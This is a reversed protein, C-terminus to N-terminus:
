RLDRMVHEAAVYTLAAATLTPNSTGITPMNGCGVLYLNAHDWTRGSPAVVSDLRSKGMRHTGVVHGAGMLAFAAGQHGLIQFPGGALATYDTKEDVGTRKWVQTAVSVFAECGALSYSEIDYHIVPKPIGLPGVYAPDIRVRNSASPLQEILAGLRVQRTVTEALKQRLAAGFLGAAVGASVDASPSGFSSWGWNNFSARFAAHEQRFKGDRLSEIGTIADPGRYPYLPEPALGWSYIYPHDMLNRGLQDSSNAAGSSLLLRANEIANAALVFIAAEVRVTEPAAAPKGNAAHYRKYELARIRGSDSDIVLRTAVSQTQIEIKEPPISALTKLANYKAQVPCLPTCSSNGQCRLGLDGDGPASVPKYGAGGNYKPNPISNRGQPISIAEVPYQGGYMPTKMGKLRPIFYQDLYSAPIKKMPYVYGRPFTVGHITQDEVDAAVGIEQEAQGYYRSLDEYGIPWDVGRGYSTQMRFDNPVMRLSTGQWHLTTGGLARTYDSLFPVPGLQVLYSATSPQGINRVDAAPANPNAPYPANPAGSPAKLYQDIYPQYSKPDLRADAGAELLLVRKGNEVLKKAMMAGTIGGGVIVVDYRKVTM